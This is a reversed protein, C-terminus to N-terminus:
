LLKNILNRLICDDKHKGGLPTLEGDIYTFRITEHCSICEGNSLAGSYLWENDILLDLILDREEDTLEM